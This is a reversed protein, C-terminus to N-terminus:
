VDTVTVDDKPYLYVKKQNSFAVRRRVHGSDRNPSTLISSVPYKTDCGSKLISKYGDMHSPQKRLVGTGYRLSVCDTTSQFTHTLKAKAGVFDFDFQISDEDKIRDDNQRWNGDIDQIITPSMISAQRASGKNTKMSCSDIKTPSKQELRVNEPLSDAITVEDLTERPLALSRGSKATLCIRCRRSAQMKLHTILKPKINMTSLASLANTDGSDFSVESISQQKDITLPKGARNLYRVQLATLEPYSTM